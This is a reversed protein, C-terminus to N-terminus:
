DLSSTSSTEGLVSVNNFQTGNSLTVSVSTTGAPVVHRNTIVLGGSTLIIGTGASQQTQPLGSNFFSGTTPSATSTVNVSVVSPGVTKAISSILEGQSTIVVKQPSLNGNLVTGTNTTHVGAGLWGAAFGILGSIVVGILIINVTKSLKIKQDPLKTRLWALAPIRDLFLLSSKSSVTYEKATDPQSTSNNNKVEQAM